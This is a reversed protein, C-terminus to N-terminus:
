GTAAGGAAVGGELRGAVRESVLLFNPEEHQEVDVLQEQSLWHFNAVLDAVAASQVSSGWPM